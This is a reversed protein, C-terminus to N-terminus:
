NDPQNLQGNNNDRSEAILPPRLLQLLPQRLRLPTVCSVRKRALVAYTAGGQSWYRQGLAELWSFRQRVATTDIPPKFYASEVGIVEFDLLTLWDALRQPSLDRKLWPTASWPLRCFRWLGWLSWPNFGLVVLHGEPILVRAAERLTAHPNVAVDLLHQIVVVDMSGTALPLQEPLAVLSSLGEVAQLQKDVVLRHRIRSTHLLHCPILQGLQLAHYGFLDPLIHGLLRDEAELLEQGMDTNFWDSLGQTVEIRSAPQWIHPLEM